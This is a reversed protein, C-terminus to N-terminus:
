HHIQWLLGGSSTVYEKAERKLPSTFHHTHVREAVKM